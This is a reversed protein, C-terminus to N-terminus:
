LNIRSFASLKSPNRVAYIRHICGSDAEITLATALEDDEFILVGLSGNFCQPQMRIVVDQRDLQSFIKVFFAAVKEGGRLVDQLAQVKGGGDTYLAVGDALLLTLKELNFERVASMFGDLLLRHEDPTADFRPHNERIRKRSRTAVQRCNASTKGVVVAIEDFSLDFIDHLLFVAREVPTLKELALLLAISITDNIEVQVAPDSQDDWHTDPFPEPLWEGVYMERQKRASKLQNLSIRSCVTILWARPNALTEINTEHWKLFTEHIVDKAEELTGLMRYALGELTKRHQEFISTKEDLM